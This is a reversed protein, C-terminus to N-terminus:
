RQEFDEGALDIVEQAFRARRVADLNAIERLLRLKIGRFVHEAIGHFPDRFLFGDEIAVVLNRGVVRVLGSVLHRRQLVLDVRLIQPVEVGLDFLREIRKATRRPVRGDLFKRAAFLAADCQGFEEQRLGVNKQEVFRGVMQVRFANGPELAIQLLVRAADDEHGM